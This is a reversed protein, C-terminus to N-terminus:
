EMTATTQSPNFRMRDTCVIQIPQDGSSMKFDNFIQGSKAQQQSQLHQMIVDNASVSTDLGGRGDSAAAFSYHHSQVPADKKTSPMEAITMVCVKTGICLALEAASQELKRM